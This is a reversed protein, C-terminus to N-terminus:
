NDEKQNEDGGEDKFEIYMGLFIGFLFPLAVLGILDHLAVSIIM